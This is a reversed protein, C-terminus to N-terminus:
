KRSEGIKKLLRDKNNVINLLISDGFEDVTMSTAPSLIRESKLARILEEDTYGHEAQHDRIQQLLSADGSPQEADQETNESVPTAEVETTPPEPASELATRKLLNAKKVTKPASNEVIVEAEDEDYVGSIGFAVRAGQILAKHRLMRRPSKNWPDTNRHCEEFYETVILPHSRRKHYITATCSVPKGDEKFEFDFKVGDYDPQDNLLKIWGDVSVVPVIGGGKAPFAYIQKVLPNLKYENSVVVLAALESESAGKFVTDKLVQLMKNPELNLREGMVQLASAKKKPEIVAIQNTM